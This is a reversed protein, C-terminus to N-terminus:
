HYWCVGERNVDTASRERSSSRRRSRNRSGRNGGSSFRSRSREQTKLAAAVEERIIKRLDGGEAPAGVSSIITPIAAEMIRDAMEALKDLTMSDASALIM